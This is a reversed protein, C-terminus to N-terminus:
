NNLLLGIQRRVKGIMGELLFQHQDQRTHVSVDNWGAITNIVKQPAVGADLQVVVESQRPRELPPLDSAPRDANEM